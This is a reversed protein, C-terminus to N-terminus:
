GQVWECHQRATFVNWTISDHKAHKANKKLLRPRGKQNTKIESKLSLNHVTTKENLIVFQDRNWDICILWEHQM